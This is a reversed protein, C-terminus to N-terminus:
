VLRNQKIVERYFEASRKPIREMTSYTTYLLGFRKSYGHAWEFNDLLSWVFYGKLPIGEATARAASRFHERLYFVRATDEIRGESDLKDNCACGNETIYIAPPNWEEAILRPLWYTIEPGIKAWPMNLQPHGDQHPVVRFGKESNEDAAIYDPAYMNIGVFDVPTGIIAMDEDTFKPADAGKESLWSAPYAGEMMPVLRSSAVHRFAKRTAEIHSETEIIPVTSPVVDVMGIECHSRATSRLGLIAFGHGLCAHHEAQAVRQPSLRKGPAFKGSRYGSGIFSSIENVTFFHQVRDSFHEGIFAAFDGLAEATERSEWGGWRDELAQPLDWHFLTM